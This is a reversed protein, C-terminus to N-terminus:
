DISSLLTNLAPELLIEKWGSRHEWQWLIQRASTPGQQSDVSGGESPRPSRVQQASSATEKSSHRSPQLDQLVPGSDNSVASQRLRSALDDTHLADPRLVGVEERTWSAPYSAGDDASRRRFLHDQSRRRGPRWLAAGHNLKRGVAGKATGSRKIVAGARVARPM